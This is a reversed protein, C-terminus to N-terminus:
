VEQEHEEKVTDPFRAALIVRGGESVRIVRATGNSPRRPNEAYEVRPTVGERALRSLAAELPLGLLGTM